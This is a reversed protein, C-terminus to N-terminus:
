FYIGCQDIWQDVIRPEALAAHPRLGLREPEAPLVHVEFLLEEPDRAVVRVGIAHSRVVLPDRREVPCRLARGSAGFQRLAPAPHPM